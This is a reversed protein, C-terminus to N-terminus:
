TAFSVAVHRRRHDVRQFLTIASRTIAVSAAGTACASWREHGFRTWTPAASDDAVRAVASCSEVLSVCDFRTLSLVLSAPDSAPSGGARLYEELTFAVDPTGVALEGVRAAARGAPVDESLCEKLASHM